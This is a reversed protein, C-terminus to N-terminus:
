CFNLLEFYQVNYGVFLFFVCYTHKRLLNKVFIIYFLLIVFVCFRIMLIAQTIPFSIRPSIPGLIADARGRIFSPFVGRHPFGRLLSSPTRGKRSALM